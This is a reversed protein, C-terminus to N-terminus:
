RRRRLLRLRVCWAAPALLMVVMLTGGGAGGGCRHIPGDPLTQWGIGNPDEPLFIAQVTKDKDMTLNLPNDTINPAPVDGVWAQFLFGEPPNATLAVVWPDYLPYSALYPDM